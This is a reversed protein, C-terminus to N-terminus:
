VYRFGANIGQHQMYLTITNLRMIMPARWRPAIHQQIISFIRLPQSPKGSADKNRSDRAFSVGITKEGRRVAREMEREDGNISQVEGRRRHDDHKQQDKRKSAKMEQSPPFRRLIGLASKNVEVLHTSVRTGNRKM